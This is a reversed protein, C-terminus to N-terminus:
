TFHTFPHFLSFKKSVGPILHLQDSVLVYEAKEEAAKPKPPPADALRVDVFPWCMM